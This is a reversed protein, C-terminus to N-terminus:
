LHVSATCASVFLIFLLLVDSSFTSFNATHWHSSALVCIFNDLLDSSQHIKVHIVRFDGDAMSDTVAM